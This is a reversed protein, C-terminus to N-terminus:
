DEDDSYDDMEADEDDEDEEDTEVPSVASPFLAAIDDSVRYGYYHVQYQVFRAIDVVVGNRDRGLQDVGDRTMGHNNLGNANFGERDYGYCDFGDSDFLEVGPGFICRMATSFQDCWSHDRSVRVARDILVSPAVPETQSLYPM